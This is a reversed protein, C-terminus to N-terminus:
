NESKEYLYSAKMDAIHLLLALPNRGFVLSADSNYGNHEIGGMHYRIAQAATISLIVFNQILLVSKEGHGYIIEPEYKYYPKQVWKTTGDPQKEQVNRYSLTYTNAKCLDHCLAVLILEDKSVDLYKEFLNNKIDNFPIFESYEETAEKETIYDAVEQKLIELVKLTHACLGGAYNSHYASSAPAEFFDTSQIYALLDKVGHIKISELTQIFYNKM